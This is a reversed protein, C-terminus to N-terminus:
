NFSSSTGSSVIYFSASYSDDTDTNLESNDNCSSSFRLFFPLRDLVFFNAENISFLSSSYLSSLFALKMTHKPKLIASMKIRIPAM